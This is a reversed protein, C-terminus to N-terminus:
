LVSSKPTRGGKAISKVALFCGDRGLGVVGFRSNGVGTTPFNFRMRKPKRRAHHKSQGCKVMSRVALFCGDRGLGVVGFWSNGVGTTPFNFRMRKAQEKRPAQKAARKVM